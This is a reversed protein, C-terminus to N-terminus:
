ISIRLLGLRVDDSDGRQQCNGRRCNQFHSGGTENEPTRALGMASQSSEAKALNTEGSANAIRCFRCNFNTASFEGTVFPSINWWM